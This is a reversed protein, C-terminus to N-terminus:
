TYYVAAPLVSSLVQFYGGKFLEKVSCLCKLIIYTALIILGEETYNVQLFNEGKNNKLDMSSLAQHVAEKSKPLPPYTKM